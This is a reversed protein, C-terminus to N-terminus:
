TGELNSPGFKRGSRVLDIDTGPVERFHRGPGNMDTISPLGSSMQESQAKGNKVWSLCPRVM